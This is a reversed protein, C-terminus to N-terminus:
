ARLRRLQDVVFTVDEDALHPYMPLSLIERAAAETETLPGAATELDAYAEQLHVPVPYHLGTAVGTEALAAALEDRREARIVYLHYVHRRGEAEVPTEVATGALGEHYLRAARRRGENWADLRGLKLALVAAQLADLRANGGDRTVHEYKRSQGHDRLVRARDAWGAHPTTVAGAEGIAGLNKGPYFSFAAADGMGGCARETGDPFRYTAGHAQAADEVVPIGFEAALELLPAMDASQGYLHVPLLAAIRRGSPGHVLAGSGDRQCRTRLVTEVAGPDMTQTHREIDVFLPLAGIQTVGEATAIFTHSVTLVADGSRVGAIQLAIRVADTGSAVGVAHDVGVYEAFATEFAEVREGGVFASADLVSAFASELEARLEEHQPGLDVFPVRRLATAADNV